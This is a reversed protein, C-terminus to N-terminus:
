ELLWNTAKSEEIFSRVVCNYKDNEADLNTTQNRSPTLLAAFKIVPADLSHVHPLFTDYFWFAADEDIRSRRRVDLLVRYHQTRVCFDLIAFYIEKLTETECEGMWRVIFLQLEPREQVTINTFTTLKQM